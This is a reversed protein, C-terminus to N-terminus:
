ILKLISAELCTDQDAGVKYVFASYKSLFNDLFGCFLLACWVVLVGLVASRISNVSLLWLCFSFSPSRRVIMALNCLEWLRKERADEGGKDKPWSREGQSIPHRPSGSNLTPSPPMIFFAESGVELEKEQLYVCPRPPRSTVQLTATTSVQWHWPSFSRQRHTSQLIVCILGSTIASTGQSYKIGRSGGMRAM